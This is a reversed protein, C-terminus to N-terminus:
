GELKEKAQYLMEKWTLNNDEKIQSLEKHEEKDLPIRTEVM